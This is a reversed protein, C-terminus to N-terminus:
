REIAIYQKMCYGEIKADEPDIIVKYFGDVTEKDDIVVETGEAVRHIINSDSESDPESRVNLMQCGVVIGKLPPRCQEEDTVQIDVEETSVEETPIVDRRKGRNDEKKNM